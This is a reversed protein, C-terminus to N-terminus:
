QRLTKIARESTKVNAIDITIPDGFFVKIRDDNTNALIAIIKNQTLEQEYKVYAALQEMSQILDDDFNDKTEIIITLREDAFRIDVNQYKRKWASDFYDEINKGINKLAQKYSFEDNEINSTLFTEGVIRIIKNRKM